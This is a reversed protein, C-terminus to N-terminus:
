SLTRHGLGFGLGLELSIGLRLAVCRSGATVAPPSVPDEEDGRGVESAPMRGAQDWDGDTGSRPPDEAPMPPQAVGDSEQLNAGGDAGAAAGESSGAVDRTDVRVRGGLLGSADLQQFLPPVPEWAAAMAAIDDRTRAHM